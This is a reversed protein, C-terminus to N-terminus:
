LHNMSPCKLEPNVKKEGTSFLIFIFLKASRGVSRGIIKKAHLQYCLYIKKAGNKNLRYIKKDGDGLFITLIFFLPRLVIRLTSRFTIKNFQM